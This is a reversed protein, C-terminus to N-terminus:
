EVAVLFESKVWGTQAGIDVLTWGPVEAGMPLPLVVVPTKDPLIKLVDYSFAPGVRLRLGKQSNVAHMARQEEQEAAAPLDQAVAQQEQQIDNAKSM